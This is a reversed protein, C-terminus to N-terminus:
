WPGPNDGHRQKAKWTKTEKKPEKTGYRVKLREGRFHHIQLCNWIYMRVNFRVLFLCLFINNNNKERLLGLLYRRADWQRQKFEQGDKFWDTVRALPKSIPISQLWDHSMKPAICPILLDLDCLSSHPFLPEWPLIQISTVFLSLFTQM